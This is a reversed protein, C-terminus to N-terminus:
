REREAGADTWRRGYIRPLADVETYPIRSPVTSLRTSVSDPLPGSPLLSVVTSNRGAGKSAEFREKNSAYVRAVAAHQAVVADRAVEVAARAEQHILSQKADPGLSAAFEKVDAVAESDGGVDADEGVVDEVERDLRQKTRAFELLDVLNWLKQTDVVGELNSLDLAVDPDRERIADVIHDFDVLDPLADLDIADPLQDLDITRILTDIQEVVDLLESAAATLSDGADEDDTASSVREIGAEIRERLDPPDPSSSPHNM